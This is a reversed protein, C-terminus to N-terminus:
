YTREGQFQPVTTQMVPQSGYAVKNHPAFSANKAATTSMASKVAGIVSKTLLATSATGVLTGWKSYKPMFQAIGFGGLVMVARGIDTANQFPKTRAPVAKADWYELGEDVAGVVIGVVPNTWDM